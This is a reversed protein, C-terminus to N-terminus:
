DCVGFAEGTEAGLNILATWKSLELNQSQIRERLESDRFRIYDEFEIRGLKLLRLAEIVQAKRLEIRKANRGISDLIQILNSRLSDVRIPSSKLTEKFEAEAHLKQNRASRREGNYRKDWVPWETKFGIQYWTEQSDTPSYTPNGQNSEGMTLELRFDTKSRSLAADSLAQAQINKQSQIQIHIPTLKQLASEDISIPDISVVEFPSNEPWYSKLNAMATDAEIDKQTKEDELSLYDARASEYDIKRVLKKKFNSETTALAKKAISLSEKLIDSEMKKTVATVYLLHARGCTKIWENEFILKASEYEATAAQKKLRDAKGFANRFLPESFTVKYSDTPIDKEYFKSYELSANLGFSTTQDLRTSLNLGDATVTPSSYYKSKEEKYSPSVGLTTTIIASQKEFHGYAMELKTKTKQADESHLLYHKVFQSQPMAFLQHLPAYVFVITAILRNVFRNGSIKM